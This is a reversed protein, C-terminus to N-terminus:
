GAPPTTQPTHIQGALWPLADSFAQAAFQWTHYSVLTHV